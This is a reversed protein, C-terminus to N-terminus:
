DVIPLTFLKINDAPTRHVVISEDWGENIQWMDWRNWDQVAM